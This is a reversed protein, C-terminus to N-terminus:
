MACEWDHKQLIGIAFAHDVGKAVTRPADEVPIMGQFGESFADLHDMLPLDPRIVPIKFMEYAKYSMESWKPKVIGM